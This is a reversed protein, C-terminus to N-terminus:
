FKVLQSAPDVSQSVCHAQRLHGPPRASAAVTPTTVAGPSGMAFVKRAGKVAHHACMASRGIEPGMHVRQVALLRQLSGWEEERDPWAM